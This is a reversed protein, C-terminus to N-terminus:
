VSIAEYKTESSHAFGNQLDGESNLAAVEYMSGYFRKHVLGALWHRLLYTGYFVVHLLVVLLVASCIASAAAVQPHSGYDLIPYIFPRDFPDTGNGLYYFGSFSVYASSFIFTFLVHYLRVPIATLLLDATSLIGNVLHVHLSNVSVFFAPSSPDYLAIWFLLTIGVAFEGGILFLLWHIKNNM